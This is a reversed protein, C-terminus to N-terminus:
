LTIHLSLPAAAKSNHQAFTKTRAKKNAADNQQMEDHTVAPRHLKCSLIILSSSTGMTESGGRGRELGHIVYTFSDKAQNATLKIVIYRYRPILEEKKEAMQRRAVVMTEDTMIINRSAAVSAVENWSGFGM